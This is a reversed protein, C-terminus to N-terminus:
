FLATVQQKDTEISGYLKKVYLVSIMTLLVIIGSFLHQMIVQQRSMADNPYFTSVIILALSVFGFIKTYLDNQLFITLLIATILGGDLFSFQPYLYQLVATSVTVVSCFLIVNLPKEKFM